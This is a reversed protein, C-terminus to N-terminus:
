LVAAMVSTESVREAYRAGPTGRDKPTAVEDIGADKAKDAARPAGMVEDSACSLGREVAGVYWLAIAYRVAGTARVPLVEHPVRQDSAFLILRAPRPM